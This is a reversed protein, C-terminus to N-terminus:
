PLLEPLKGELTKAGAALGLRCCGKAVILKSTYLSALPFNRPNLVRHLPVDIICEARMEEELVYM